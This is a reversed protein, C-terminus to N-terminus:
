MYFSSFSLFSPAALILNRYKPYNFPTALYLYLYDLIYSSLLRKLSCNLSYSSSANNVCVSKFAIVTEDETPIPMKLDIVFLSKYSPLDVM